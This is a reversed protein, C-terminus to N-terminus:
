AATLRVSGCSSPKQWLTTAVRRASAHIPGHIGRSSGDIGDAVGVVRHLLEQIEQTGVPDGGHGVDTGRGEAAVVRLEIALVELYGKPFRPNVIDEQAALQAGSGLVGVAVFPPPNHIAAQCPRCQELLAEIPNSLPHRPV